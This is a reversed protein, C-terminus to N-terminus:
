PRKGLDWDVQVTPLPRSFIRVVNSPHPEALGHSVRWDHAMQRIDALDYGEPVWTGADDCPCHETDADFDEDECQDEDDHAVAGWHTQDDHWPDFEQAGLTPELDADGDLEDLADILELVAAELWAFPPAIRKAWARAKAIAEPDVM